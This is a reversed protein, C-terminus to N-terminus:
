GSQVPPRRAPRGAHSETRGAGSGGLQRAHRGTRAAKLIDERVQPPAVARDLLGRLADEDDIVPGELLGHEFRYALTPSRAWPAPLAVDRFTFNV